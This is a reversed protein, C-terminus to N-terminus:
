PMETGRVRSTIQPRPSERECELDPLKKRHRRSANTPRHAASDTPAVAHPELWLDDVDVLVLVLELAGTRETASRPTTVIGTAVTPSGPLGETPTQCTNLVSPVEPAFTVRGGSLLVPM